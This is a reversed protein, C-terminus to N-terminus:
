LSLHLSSLNANKMNGKPIFYSHVINLFLVPQYVQIPFIGPYTCVYENRM